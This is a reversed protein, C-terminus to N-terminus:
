KWMNQIRWRHNIVNLHHYNKTRCTCTYWELHVKRQLENVRFPGWGHVSTDLHCYISHYFNEIGLSVCAQYFKRSFFEWYLKPCTAVIKQSRSPSISLFTSDEPNFFVSADWVMKGNCLNDTIYLNIHYNSVKTIKM